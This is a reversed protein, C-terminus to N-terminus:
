PRALASLCPRAQGRRLGAQCQARRLFRRYQASWVVLFGNATRERAGCVPCWEHLGPPHQALLGLSFFIAVTILIPGIHWYHERSLGGSSQLAAHWGEHETAAAQTAVAWHSVLLVGPIILAIM